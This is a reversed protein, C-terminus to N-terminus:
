QPTEDAQCPDAPEPHRRHPQGPHKATRARALAGAQVWPRGRGRRLKKRPVVTTAEQRAPWPTFAVAATSDPDSTSRHRTNAAEQKKDLKEMQAEVVVKIVSNRSANARILSADVHLKEGDVLGAKVCQGITREFVRAFVESGWRARAKSLVSHDPVADELGFGLFWLYDIRLPVVRMLERESRVDDLFLLLMLKMIVVPDASVHGNRGYFGSVERHVFRLDLIKGIKRLLHDEPIRKGLEVPEVWLETQKAMRGM